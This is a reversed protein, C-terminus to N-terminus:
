GLFSKDKQIRARWAAANAFIFLLLVSVFLAFSKETHLLAQDVLLFTLGFALVPLAIDMGPNGKRELIGWSREAYEWLFATSLLIFLTPFLPWDFTIVGLAMVMGFLFHPVSWPDLLRSILSLRKM